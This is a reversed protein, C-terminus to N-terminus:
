PPMSRPSCVTRFARRRGRGHCFPFLAGTEAITPVEPAAFWREETLVAFPKINGARFQPL